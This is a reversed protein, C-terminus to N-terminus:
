NLCQKRTDRYHMMMMMMMVLLLMLRATSAINVDRVRLDNRQAIMGATVDDSATVDDGSL